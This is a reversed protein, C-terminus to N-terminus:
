LGLVAIVTIVFFVVVATLLSGRNMRVEEEFQLQADAGFSKGRLEQSM